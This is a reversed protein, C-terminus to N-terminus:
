NCSRGGLIMKLPYNLDGINFRIKVIASGVTACAVNEPCRSEYLSDVCIYYNTAQKVEINSCSYINSVLLAERSKTEKKCNIFLCIILLTIGIYAKIFFYKM